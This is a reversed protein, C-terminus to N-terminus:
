EKQEWDNIMQWLDFLRKVDQMPLYSLCESFKLSMENMDVTVEGGGMDLVIRKIPQFPVITATPNSPPLQLSGDPYKLGRSAM